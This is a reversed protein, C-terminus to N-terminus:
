FCLCHTTLPLSDDSDSESQHGVERLRRKPTQRVPYRETGLEVLTASEVLTQQWVEVLTQEFSSKMAPESEHPRM